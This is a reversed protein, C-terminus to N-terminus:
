SARLSDLNTLSTVCKPCRWLRYSRDEPRIEALYMASGDNPCRISPTTGQETRNGEKAAIFYGSSTNYHVLCDSESCVYAITQVPGTEAGQPDHKYIMMGTLHEYCLPQLEEKM